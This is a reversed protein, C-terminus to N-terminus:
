VGVVVGDRYMAVLGCVDLQSVYDISRVLGRECMMRGVRSAMLVERPDTGEFALEAAIAADSYHLADGGM